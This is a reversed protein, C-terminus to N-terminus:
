RDPSSVRLAEVLPDRHLRRLAAEIADPLVSRERMQEFKAAFSTPNGFRPENWMAAQGPDSHVDAWWDELGGEPDSPDVPISTHVMGAPVTVAAGTSRFALSREGLELRQAVCDIAVAGPEAEADGLECDVLVAGEVRAHGHLVTDVVVSDQVSGDAPVVARGVVRNGFQDPPVQQLAALQRAFRGEAGSGALLAWAGRAKDLQGIDGWYLGEGLDVVQVVLERGRRAEIRQRLAQVRQYFDPHSALLRRLGVDRGAEREWAAADHTLAEFLYGDVDLWGPLDGFVAEAEELFTWSLAPSGLHALVEVEGVEAIRDRLEPLPRRRLQLRLAGTRRDRVLWEKNLAMEVTVPVRAGFRIADAKSLDADLDALVRAPVIPEDGWKWAIGEFGLRELHRVVLSWTFLSATAGDLWPGEESTRVPVPMFPKIGHLRQTLPSLRTGKGPLMIGLAIGDAQLGDARWRRVADLLGLLQGRRQVEEHVRVTTAGDSRFIATTLGCLAGAVVADDGGNTIALVQLPGGSRDVGARLDLLNITRGALATVLRRVLGDPERVAREVIADAREQTDSVAYCRFQPANGSQRFHIVDGSELRIRVGDTTDVDVVPDAPVERRFVRLGAPEALAGVVAQGVEPPVGDVLGASTARPPFSHFLASVLVRRQSAALLVAIIPLVADRTPLAALVGSGLPLDTATLFGGNVEWGVVARRGRRLGDEMAAIVWPSGIRTKVVEFPDPQSALHRDLADTTSIPVAAFEAGLLEATVLGVVDGRHFRGQEDVVLPRDGDGDTSVLADPRHEEVLAHFRAAEEPGIDETDVAVFADSRGVPVARAGLGELIQVLLDRGAASHQWVVVKRGQLPLADDFPDLYRRVYAEAADPVFPEAAPPEVFAGSGDFRPGDEASRVQRVAARIGAEDSKLVEGDPKYFKIGNRDAPVHSGTVMIAPISRGLAWCALTPTPIQGCHVPELGLDRVATAVASAIRPSSSLGTSPDVTRLDEGLAVVGGPQISGTDLLWRLFGLANLYVEQDTMDRVAGRLGSTGFKLEV